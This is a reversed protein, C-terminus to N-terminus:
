WQRMTGSGSINTSQRNITGDQGRALRVRMRLAFARCQLKKKQRDPGYKRKEIKTAPVLSRSRRSHDGVRFLPLIIFCLVYTAAASTASTAATVGILTRACDTGDYASPADVLASPSSFM